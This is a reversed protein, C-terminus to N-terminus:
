KDTKKKNRSLSGCKQPVEAVKKYCQNVSRDSRLANVKEQILKWIKNKEEPTVKHSFKAKLIHVHKACKETLVAQKLKTWNESKEGKTKSEM